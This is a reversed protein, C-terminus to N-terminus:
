RPTAENTREGKKEPSAEFQNEMTKEDINSLPESLVKQDNASIEPAITDDVLIHPVQKEEDPKRAEAAAQEQRKRHRRERERERDRLKPSAISEEGTAKENAARRALM